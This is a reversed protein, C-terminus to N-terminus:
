ERPAHELDTGAGARVEGVIRLGDGLEDGDLGLWIQSAPGLLCCPIRGDGDVDDVCGGFLQRELILLEIGTDCRENEAGHVIRGARQPLQISHDTGTALKAEILM